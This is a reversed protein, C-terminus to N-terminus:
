CPRPTDYSVSSLGQNRSWAGFPRSAGGDHEEMSVSVIFRPGPSGLSVEWFAGIFLDEHIFDEVRWERAAAVVGPRSMVVAM